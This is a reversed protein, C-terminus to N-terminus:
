TSHRAPTGDSFGPISLVISAASHPATAAWDSLACLTTSEATPKCCHYNGLLSWYTYYNALSYKLFLNGNLGACAIASGNAANVLTCAHMCFRGSFTRCMLCIGFHAPVFSKFYYIDINGDRSNSYSCNPNSHSLPQLVSRNSM